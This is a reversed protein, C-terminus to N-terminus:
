QPPGGPPVGPPAPPMPPQFAPLRQDEPVGLAEESKRLIANAMGYDGVEVAVPLVQQVLTEAHAERAEPDMRQTTGAVVEFGFERAFARPTIGSTDRFVDAVTVPRVTIAGTGAAMAAAIAAAQQSLAAIAPNPAALGIQSLEQIADNAGQVHTAAEEATKFYDACQPYLLELSLPLAKGQKKAQEREEKGTPDRVPLEAGRVNVSVLFGLDVSGVVNAVDMEDVQGGLRLTLAESRASLSCFEEVKALMDQVRASAARSKQASATASREQAGAEAGGHLVSLVGSTKEFESMHWERAARIEPSMMGTDFRYLIDQPKFGGELQVPIIESPSGCHLRAEDAPDIAGKRLFFLERGHTRAGWLELSSLIDIARQHGLCQGMISEPWLQDLTEVFDLPVIPWGRDLYLPVDWDGEWLPVKHGPAIVLKVEDRQENEDKTDEPADPGRALGAGMKSYVEWYEVVDNTYWGDGDKRQEEPRQGDPTSMNGKLGRVRWREKGYRRKVDHLPARCRIAVWWADDLRTVGPDITVDLSSVNWSTIVERQAEYGTRLWGRGRLLADDIARRVQAQLNTERPTYNLYKGTVIGMARLVGDSTKTNVLRTPNQQYLHPGLVSRVQAAKNVSVFVGRESFDMYSSKIEDRLGEHRCSFYSLVEKATALYKSMAAQGAKIYREWVEVKATERKRRPDSPDM